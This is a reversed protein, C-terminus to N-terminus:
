LGLFMLYSDTLQFFHHIKRHYPEFLNSITFNLLHAEDQVIHICDSVYNQKLIVNTDPICKIFKM